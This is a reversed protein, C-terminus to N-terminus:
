VLGQDYLWSYLQDFQVHKEAYTTFNGYYESYSHDERYVLDKLLQNYQKVTIKPCVEKLLQDLLELGPEEQPSIPIKARDGWCNGGFSGGTIWSVTYRKSDGYPWVIASEGYWQNVNSFTMRVFGEFEYRTM